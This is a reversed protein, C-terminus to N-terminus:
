SRRRLGRVRVIRRMARLPATLRWSRSGEFAKIRAQLDPLLAELVKKDRGVLRITRTHSIDANLDVVLNYKDAM